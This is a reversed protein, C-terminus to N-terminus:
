WLTRKSLRRLLLFQRSPVTFSESPLGTRGHIARAQFCRSQRSISDEALQILNAARDCLVRSHMTVLGARHPCCRQAQGLMADAEEHQAGLMLSIGMANCSGMCCAVADPVIAITKTVKLSYAGRGAYDGGKDLLRLGRRM